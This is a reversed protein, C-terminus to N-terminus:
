LEKLGASIQKEDFGLVVRNGIVITPVGSLRLVEQQFRAEEHDREIDFEVYRVGNAALLERAQASYPCWSTGFMVVQAKTFKALQGATEPKLRLVPGGSGMTMVLAPNDTELVEDGTSSFNRSADGSKSKGLKEYGFYGIALIAAVIAFLFTRSYPMSQAVGGDRAPLGSASQAGQQFKAYAIGCSPCQWDPVTEAPKRIYNCKPCVQMM